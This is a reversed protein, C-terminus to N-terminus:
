HYASAEWALLEAETYPVQAVYPKWYTMDMEQGNMRAVLAEAEDRHNWDVGAGVYDGYGDEDEVNCGARFQNWTRFTYEFEGESTEAVIYLTTTNIAEGDETRGRFYLDVSDCVTAKICKM